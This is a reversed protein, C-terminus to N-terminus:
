EANMSPTQRSAQTTGVRRASRTSGITAIRASYVTFPLVARDLPLRPGRASRIPEGIMLRGPACDPDECAVPNCSPAAPM